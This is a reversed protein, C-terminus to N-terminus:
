VSEITNVIVQQLCADFQETYKTYQPQTCATRGM